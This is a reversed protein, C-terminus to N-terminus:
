LGHEGLLLFRHEEGETREGIEAVGENDEDDNWSGNAKCGHKNILDDERGGGRGEGAGEAGERGEFWCSGHKDM